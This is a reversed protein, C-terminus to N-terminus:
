PTVIVMAWLGRDDGNVVWRRGPAVVVPRCGRDRLGDVVDGTSSYWPGGDILTDEIVYLGGLALWPRYLDFANLIDPTQHTCDDVILDFPRLLENPHRALVHRDLADDQIQTVGEVPPMGNCDIGVIEADPWYDRWLKLSAGEYVGLELVRHVDLHATLAELHDLYGHDWSAKNTGHVAGLHDLRGHDWPGLEGDWPGLDRGDAAKEIPHTSM